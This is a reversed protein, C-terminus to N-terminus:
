RQKRPVGQNGELPTWLDIMQVAEVPQLATRAEAASRNERGGADRAGSTMGRM